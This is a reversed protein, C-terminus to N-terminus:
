ENIACIFRDIAERSTEVKGGTRMSELTVFTKEGNRLVPYGRNAYMRITQYTVRLRSAAAKLSLRDESLLRIIASADKKSRKKM